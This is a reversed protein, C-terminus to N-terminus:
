RKIAVIVIEDNIVWVTQNLFAIRKWIQTQEPSQKLKHLVIYLFLSETKVKVVFIVNPKTM